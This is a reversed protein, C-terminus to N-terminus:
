RETFSYLTGAPEGAAELKDTADAGTTDPGWTGPDYLEVVIEGDERYNRRPIKKIDLPLILKM